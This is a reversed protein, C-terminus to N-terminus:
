TSCTTSASSLEPALHSAHAEAGPRVAQDDDPRALAPAVLVKIVLAENVLVDEVLYVTGFGGGGIRQVVRFRGLL